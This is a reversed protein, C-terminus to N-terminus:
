SQSGETSPWARCGRRASAIGATLAGLFGLSPVLVSFSGAREGWARSSGKAMGTLVAIVVTAAFVLIRLGRTSM